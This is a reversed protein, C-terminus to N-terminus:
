LKRAEAEIWHIARLIAEHLTAGLHEVLTGDAKKVVVSAPTVPGAPNATPDTVQVIQPANLSPIIPSPEKTWQWRGVYPFGDCVEALFTFAAETIGAIDAISYTNEPPAGNTPAAPAPFAAAADVGWQYRTPFDLALLTNLQDSNPLASTTMGGAIYQAVAQQPTYLISTM